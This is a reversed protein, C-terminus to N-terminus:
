GGGCDCACACNCNCNTYCNGTTGCNCNNITRLQYTGLIEDTNVYSGFINSKFPSVSQLTNSSGGAFDYGNPNGCNGTPVGTFGLGTWTWWNGNPPTPVDFPQNVTVGDVNIYTSSTNYVVDKYGNLVAADCNGSPVVGGCNIAAITQQITIKQKFSLPKGSGDTIGIDKADVTANPVILNGTNDIINALNRAKTM